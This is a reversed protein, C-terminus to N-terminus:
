ANIQKHFSRLADVLFFNETSKDKGNYLIDRQDEENLIHQIDKSVLPVPFVRYPISFYDCQYETEEKIIKIEKLKKIEIDIFRKIDGNYKQDLENEKKTLHHEICLTHFENEKYMDTSYKSINTIRLPKSDADYFYAYYLENLHHNEKPLKLYTFISMGNSQLKKENYQIEKTETTVIKTLTKVNGPWIMKGSEVIFESDKNDKTEICSIFINTRKSVRTESNIRISRIKTRYMVKVGQMVLKSIMSDVLYKMGKKPYYGRQKNIRYNEPMNLQNPYAVIDRSKKYGHLERTMAEDFLCIRDLKTIYAATPSLSSSAKGYLKTVIKDYVEDTLACGFRNEFYDRCNNIEKDEKGQELRVLIEGIYRAKRTEEIKSLDPYPTNYQIKNQYIAGAIDKRNGELLVWEEEELSKYVIEDIEPIGTEYFIHMGKDLSGLIKSIWPNYLGGAENGSEVILINTPDVQKWNILYQAIVISSLGAGCITYEINM